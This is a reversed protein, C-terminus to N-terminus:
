QAHCGDLQLLLRPGHHLQAALFCLGLSDEVLVEVEGFHADTAQVVLEILDETTREGRADERTVDNLLHADVVHATHQQISRRTAALGEDRALNPLHQVRAFGLHHAARLDHAFVHALALLVDAVEERLRLGLLLRLSVVRHEMDDDEVLEIGDAFRAAGRVVVRTHAVRHHVLEERLDVTDVRQVVNQDDAHRVPLVHDIVGDESGAAELHVDLDPQRGLASPQLDDVYM